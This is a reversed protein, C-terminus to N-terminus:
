DKATPTEVGSAPSTREAQEAAALWSQAANLLTSRERATKAIAALQVCEQAAKRCQEPTRM